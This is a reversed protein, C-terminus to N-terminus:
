LLQKLKERCKQCLLIKRSHGGYRPIFEIEKINNEIKNTDCSMCGYSFGYEKQIDEEKIKIMLKVDQWLNRTEDIRLVREM